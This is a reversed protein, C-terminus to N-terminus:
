DPIPATLLLARMADGMQAPAFAAEFIRAVEGARYMRSLESDVAARFAHDGLTLALAQPEITLVDTSIALQARDPTQALQAMLISQDAFYAQIVGGVLNTVGDSHDGVTVVEAEMDMERLTARLGEETTTGERVGIRAGALGRFDSLADRRMIVTAGDIFVPISFDVIGRRTVTETAAGCLLDIRGSAVADFRESADVSVFVTEIEADLRAGLREVLRACLAVTFGEPAGDRLFSLPAADARVGIRIEGTESIRALTQARAPAASTLAVVLAALVAFARFM